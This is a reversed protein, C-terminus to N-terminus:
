KEDLTDPLHWINFITDQWQSSLEQFIFVVPVAINENKKYLCYTMGIRYVYLWAIGIVNHFIDWECVKWLVM